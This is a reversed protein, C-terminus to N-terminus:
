AIQNDLEDVCVDPNRRIGTDISSVENQAAAMARFTISVDHVIEMTCATMLLKYVKSQVEQTVLMSPNRIDIRM